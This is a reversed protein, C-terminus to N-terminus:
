CRPAYPPLYRYRYRVTCHDARLAAYYFTIVVVANVYRVTGYQLLKWGQLPHCIKARAPEAAYGLCGATM